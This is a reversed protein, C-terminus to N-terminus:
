RTKKNITRHKAKKLPKKKAVKPVEKIVEEVEEIDENQPIESEKAIENSMDILEELKAKKKRIDLKYITNVYNDHWERSYVRRGSEIISIYNRTMNLENAVELQTLDHILRLHKLEIANLM